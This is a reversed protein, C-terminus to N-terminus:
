NIYRKLCSLLVTAKCTSWRFDFRVEIINTINIKCMSEGTNKKKYTEM